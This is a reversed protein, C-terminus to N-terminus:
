ERNSSQVEKQYREKMYKEVTIWRKQAAEESIGLEEMNQRVFDEKNYFKNNELWEEFTM